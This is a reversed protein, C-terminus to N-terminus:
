IKQSIVGHLGNFILRRKSPVDGGGEPDFLVLLIGAYFCTALRTIPQCPIGSWIPLLFSIPRHVEIRMTEGQSRIGVSSEWMVVWLVFLLCTGSNLIARFFPPNALRPSLRRSSVTLTHRAPFWRTVSTLHTFRLYAEPSSPTSTSFPLRSLMPPPAPSHRSFAFKTGQHPCHARVQTAGRLVWIEQWTTSAEWSGGTLMHSTEMVQESLLWGRQEYQQSPVWDWDGGQHHWGHIQAQDHPSAPHPAELQYQAGGCSVQESTRYTYTAPAGEVKPWSFPGDAWHLGSRVGPTKLGLNDKVWPLFSRLYKGPLSAWLSSATSLCALCRLLVFQRGGKHVKAYILIQWFLPPPPPLMQFIITLVFSFFQSLFL